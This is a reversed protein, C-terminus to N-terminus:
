ECTSSAGTFFASCKSSSPISSGDAKNSGGNTVAVSRRFEFGANEGSSNSANGKLSNGAGGAIDIGDGGNKSVKNDQITNSGGTVYIGDGGSTEIANKLIKNSAGSVSIGLTNRFLKNDQITNSNGEVWVGYMSNDQITAGSVTNGTKGAGIHVGGGGNPGITGSKFKNSSGLIDLGIGNSAINNFSVDNGNSSVRVGAV